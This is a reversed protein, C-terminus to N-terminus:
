SGFKQGASWWSQKGSRRPDENFSIMLCFLGDAVGPVECGYVVPTIKLMSLPTKPSTDVLYIIKINAVAVLM